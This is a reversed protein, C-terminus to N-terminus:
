CLLLNSPRVWIDEDSVHYGMQLHTLTDPWGLLHLFSCVSATTRENSVSGDARKVAVVVRDKYIGRGLWWEQLTDQFQTWAEENRTGRLPKPIHMFDWAM